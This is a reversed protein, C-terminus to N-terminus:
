FVSFAVVHSHRYGHGCGQRNNAYDGDLHYDTAGAGNTEWGCGSLEHCEAVEEDSMRVLGRTKRWVRRDFDGVPVRKWSSGQAWPV